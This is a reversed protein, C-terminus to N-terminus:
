RSPRSTERLQRSSKTTLSNEFQALSERYAGVSLMEDQKLTMFISGKEKILNTPIVYESDVNRSRRRAFSDESLSSVRYQDIQDDPIEIAILRIDSGEHDVRIIDNAYELVDLEDATKAYAPAFWCGMVNGMDQTDFKDGLREKRQESIHMLFAARKEQVSM